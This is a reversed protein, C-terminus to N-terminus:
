DLSLSFRLPPREAVLDAFVPAAVGCPEEYMEGILFSPTFYIDHHFVFMEGWSQSFSNM